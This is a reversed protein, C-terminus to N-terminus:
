QLQRKKYTSTCFNRPKRLRSRIVYKSIRGRIKRRWAGFLLELIFSIISMVSITSCGVFLQELSDLKLPKGQELLKRGKNFTTLVMAYYNTSTTKKFHRHVRKLHSVVHYLKEHEAWGWLIGSQELIGLGESFAQAFHNRTGYWPVMSRFYVMSKTKIITLNTNERMLGVLMNMDFETSIVAFKDPILVMGEDTIVPLNKTINYVVRSEDGKILVINNRLTEIMQVNVGNVIFDFLVMDKLTSYMDNEYPHATTTFYKMSSRMVLEDISEPVIPSPYSTMWSYLYGKYENGILISWFLWSFLAIYTANRFQNKKFFYILYSDSQETVVKLQFIAVRGRMSMTSTEKNSTVLIWLFIWSAVAASLLLVTADYDFLKELIKFNVNEKQHFVVYQYPNYTCGYQLWSNFDGFYQKRLFSHRIQASSMIPGHEIWTKDRYSLYITYNLEDSLTLMACLYPSEHLKSEILSCGYIRHPQVVVLAEQLNRTSRKWSAVIDQATLKETTKRKVVVAHTTDDLDVCYICLLTISTESMVFPISTLAVRRWFMKVISTIYGLAKAEYSTMVVIYTPNETLIEKDEILSEFLRRFLSPYGFYDLFLLKMYCDSYKIEQKMKLIANSLNQFKEDASGYEIEYHRRPDLVVPVQSGYHLTKESWQIENGHFHLSCSKFNDVLWIDTPTVTVTNWRRHREMDKDHKWAAGYCICFMLISVSKM